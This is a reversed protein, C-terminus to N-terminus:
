LNSMTYLPRMALKAEELLGGLLCSPIKGQPCLDLSQRKAAKRVQLDRQPQRHLM